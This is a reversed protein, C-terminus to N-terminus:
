LKNTSTVNKQIEIYQELANWIKDNHLVDRILNVLINVLVILTTMLLSVLTVCVVRCPKKRIMNMPGGGWGGNDIVPTPPTEGLFNDNELMEVSVM